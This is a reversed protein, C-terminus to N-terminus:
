IIVSLATSVICADDGRYNTNEDLIGIGWKGLCIIKNGARLAINGIHSNIAIKIRSHHPIESPTVEVNRPPSSAHM